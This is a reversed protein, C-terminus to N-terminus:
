SSQVLLFIFLTERSGAFLRSALREVALKVQLGIAICVFYITKIRPAAM